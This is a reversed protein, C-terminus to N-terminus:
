ESDSTFKMPPHSTHPDPRTIPPSGSGESSGLDDRQARLDDTSVILIIGNIWLLPTSGGHVIAALLPALMTHM